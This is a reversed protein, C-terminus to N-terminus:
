DLYVSNTKLSSTVNTADRLSDLIDYNEAINPLLDVITVTTELKVPLFM